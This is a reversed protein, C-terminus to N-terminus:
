IAGIRLYGSEIETRLTKIEAIQADITSDLPKLLEM